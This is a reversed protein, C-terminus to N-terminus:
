PIVGGGSGSTDAAEVAAAATVAATARRLLLQGQLRREDAEFPLGDVGGWGGGGGGGRERVCTDGSLQTPVHAEDQPVLNAPDPGARGAVPSNEGTGQGGLSHACM